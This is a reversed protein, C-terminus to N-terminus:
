AARGYEHILDGLIDRRVIAGNPGGTAPPRRGVPARLDLGRHPRHGNYHDVYVRLVRELHRRNVILTWDLCERRVTRVWREAFANARPARIPTRVVTTTESRFVEDFHACFLKTDRDRILFRPAPLELMLNRAQQTVWAGDPHATVGALWVRRTGIEIFFLVYLRRLMVTDVTFFDTALLGAAQARLFQAWGTGGRQGAPGLGNAKLVSRVTTVSVAVNLQALEGKIRVYGWRPNERALRLILGVVRADLPPRGPRRHPYTWHRRMADRHWGLLTAPTVLLGTRRPRPLLRSLLAALARDSPEFRPRGVQRRLVDLQHRLVIIEIDKEVEPKGRLAVLEILTCVVGYIFTLAV